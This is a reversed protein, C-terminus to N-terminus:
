KLAEFLQTNYIDFPGSNCVEEKSAFKVKGEERKDVKGEVTALFTTTLYDDGDVDSRCIGTFIPKGVKVILGTEELTERAAATKLDEGAEIKGGPLGWQDEDNPRTRILYKGDEEILCCVARKM